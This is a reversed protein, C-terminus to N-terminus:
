GNLLLLVAILSELLSYALMFCSKPHLCQLLAMLVSLVM